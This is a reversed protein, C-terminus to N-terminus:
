IIRIHNNLIFIISYSFLLIKHFYKSILENDNMWRYKYDSTRTKM